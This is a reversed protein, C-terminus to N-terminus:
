VNYYTLIEEKLEEETKTPFNGEGCYVYTGNKLHWLWADLSEIYDSELSLLRSYKGVNNGRAQFSEHCVPYATGETDSPILLAWGDEDIVLKNGRRDDAERYLKEMEEKTFLHTPKGIRKWCIKFYAMGFDTDYGECFHAIQSNLTEQIEFARKRNPAFFVDKDDGKKRKVIKGAKNLVWEEPAEFLSHFDLDGAKEFMFYFSMSGGNNNNNEPMEFHWDEFHEDIFKKPSTLEIGSESMEPKEFPNEKFKYYSLIQSEEFGKKAGDNYINEYRSILKSFEEESCDCHRADYTDPIRNYHGFKMVFLFKGKLIREECCWGEPLPEGTDYDYVGYCADDAKVYHAPTDEIVLEYWEDNWGPLVSDIEETELLFYNWKIDKFGRFYLKKPKFVLWCGNGFIRLCGEEAANEVEDFDLGGRKPVFMHNYAPCRSIEDLVKIIREKGSYAVVDPAIGNFLIESLHEWDKVQCLDEDAFIDLWRELGERFDKATPREVPNSSTAETLLKEIELLHVSKLHEFGNLRHATDRENYQGDFGKEYRSLLMWLTKAMSYVDAPKGDAYKPDRLMEPARTFIAGLPRDSQTLDRSDPFDVLGFDGFILRDNLLYINAPKIDRHSINKDHLEQLTILLLIFAKVIEVINGGQVLTTKMVKTAVPMTYWCFEVSYDFIPMVGDVSAGEGQMVKIEDRFRTKKEDDWHLLRKLAVHSNTEQETAECVLANGGEGLESGLSYKQYIENEQKKKLSKSSGM